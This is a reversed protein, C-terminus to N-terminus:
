SPGATATQMARLYRRTFHGQMARSLPGLRAVPSCPRSFAVVEFRAGDGRKTVVFAEEGCVPHGPLTGYGFGKRDPEDVVYVIRCSAVVYSGPLAIVLVVTTGVAMEGGVRVSVGAQEHVEWERLAAAARDFVAPGPPLDISWRGHRYGPPLAGRTAGVEPYTPLARAQRELLRDLVPPPPRRLVLM